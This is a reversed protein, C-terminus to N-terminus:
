EFRMPTICGLNADFNELGTAQVRQKCMFDQLQRAAHALDIHEPSPRPGM